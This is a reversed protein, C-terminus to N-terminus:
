KSQSQRFMRDIKESNADCCNQAGDAAQKAQNATSSAGAAIQKADNAAQNASDAATKASSADQAARDATAQAREVADKWEQTVCGTGLGICIAIIGVKTANQLRMNM